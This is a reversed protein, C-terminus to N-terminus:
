FTNLDTKRHSASFSTVPSGKYGKERIEQTIELLSPQSAHDINITDNQIIFNKDGWIDLGFDKM